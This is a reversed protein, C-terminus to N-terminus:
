HVVLRQPKVGPAGIVYTGPALGDTPLVTYPVGPVAPVERVKAGDVSFVTLAESASSWVVTVPEGSRVPNPGLVFDEAGAEDVGVATNHLWSTINTTQPPTGNIGDEVTISLAGYVQIPWEHVFVYDGEMTITYNGLVTSDQIIEKIHAHYAESFQQGNPLALSGVGLCELETTGTRTVLMGNTEYSAAFADSWADGLSLPYPLAAQPDDYQIVLGQQVGGYYTLSDTSSYFLATGAEDLVWEADSYTKAYFSSAADTFVHQFTQQPSLASFDWVQGTGEGEWPSFAGIARTHTMGAPSPPASLQASGSAVVAAFAFAIHHKMPLLNLAYRAAMDMPRTSKAM